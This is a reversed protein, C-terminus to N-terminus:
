LAEQLNVHSCICLFWPGVLQGASGNNDEFCISWQMWSVNDDLSGLSTLAGLRGLWQYESYPVYSSQHVLHETSPLASFGDYRVGHLLDMMHRARSECFPSSPMTRDSFLSSFRMKRQGCWITRLSGLVECTFRQFPSSCVCPTDDNDGHITLFASTPHLDAFINESIDHENLRCGSAQYTQNKVISACKTHVFCRGATNLWSRKLPLKYSYLKSKSQLVLLGRFSVFSVLWFNPLDLSRFSTESQCLHPECFCLFARPLPRNSALPKSVGSHQRERFNEGSGFESDSHWWKRLVRWRMDTM